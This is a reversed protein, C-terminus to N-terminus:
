KRRTMKPRRSRRPRRRRSRRGGKGLSLKSMLGALETSTKQAEVRRNYAVAAAKTAAAKLNGLAAPKNAEAKPLAAGYSSPGWRVGSM